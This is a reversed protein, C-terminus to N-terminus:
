PYLACDSLYRGHSEVGQVIAADVLTRAGVSTSRGIMRKAFTFIMGLIRFRDTFEQHMGSGYCFGPNVLNLIVKSRPVIRCIEIMAIQQLLKSTSYRDGMDFYKPNTFAPFIPTENQEKFKAWEATESGVITITGPKSRGGGGNQMIPLLQIALLVTSLYNVQLVEEHGTTKNIELEPKFIGANLIVFDLRSLQTSCKQSFQTISDYDSMNLDWVEIKATPAGRALETRANDGKEKNRVALILHSLGLGLLQRSAELGLGINSGTVIGTQGDLNNRQPDAKTPTLFLQRYLFRLISSMNTVFIAHFTAPSLLPPQSFHYLRSAACFTTENTLKGGWHSTASPAQM